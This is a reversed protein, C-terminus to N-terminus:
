PARAYKILAAADCLEVRNHAAPHKTQERGSIGREFGNALLRESPPRTLLKQESHTGKDIEGRLDVRTADLSGDLLQGGRDGDAARETYPPRVAPYTATEINRVQGARDCRSLARAFREPRALPEYIAAIWTNRNTIEM